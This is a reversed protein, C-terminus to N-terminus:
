RRGGRANDTRNTLGNADWQEFVDKAANIGIYAALKYFWALGM